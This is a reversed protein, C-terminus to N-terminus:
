DLKGGGSGEGDCRIEPADVTEAEERDGGEDAGYDGEEEASFQNVEDCCSGCGAM